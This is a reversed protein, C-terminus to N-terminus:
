GCAAPDFCTYDRDSRHHQRGVRQRRHYDEQADVMRREVVGEGASFQESSVLPGDAIQGQVKGWLQFGEPLEQTHTVDANFHTFSASAYYRKADFAEWDSSIPRMNYTISANFQTTFKEGQFTSGYSALLPYYTM